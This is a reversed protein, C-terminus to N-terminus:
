KGPSFHHDKAEFPQGGLMNEYKNKMFKVLFSTIPGPVIELPDGEYGHFLQVISWKDPKGKTWWCYLHGNADSGWPLLGPSEPFLPSNM